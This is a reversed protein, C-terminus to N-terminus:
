QAEPVEPSEPAEPVEPTEPAEPKKVEEECRSMTPIVFPMCLLTIVALYGYSAELEFAYYLSTNVVLLLGLVVLRLAGWRLLAPAQHRQLDDSVCKFKFLRLSLPLLAITLLIMTTSCVFRTQRTTDAFIGMDVHLFEGLIYIFTALLLFGSFIMMLLNRTKKM